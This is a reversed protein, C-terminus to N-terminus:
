IENTGEEILECVTGVIRSAESKDIIRSVSPIDEAHFVGHRNQHYFNYCDEMVRNTAVSDVHQNFEDSVVFRFGDSEYVSGLGLKKDPISYGKKNLVVKIFAELGRLAGFCFPSFDDLELDIKKLAVSAMLIKKTTDCLKSYTTPILYELEKYIDDKKLEINFTNNNIKIIDDDSLLESLIQYTISYIALPKGQFHTNGNNYRIFTFNDKSEDDHLAYKIGNAISSENISLSKMEDKLFEIILNFDDDSLSKTSYNINKEDSYKCKEIIYNAIELGIDQNKGVKPNITTTGDGKHWISIIVDKDDCKLIHNPGKVELIKTNPYGEIVTKIAAHNLNLNKFESM